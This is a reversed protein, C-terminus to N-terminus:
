YPISFFVHSVEVTCYYVNTCKKCHVFDQQSNGQLNGCAACTRQRYAELDAEVIHSPLTQSRPRRTSHVQQRVLDAPAHVTIDKQFGASIDQPMNHAQQQVPDAPIHNTFDQLFGTPLAVLESPPRFSHSRPRSQFSDRAPPSSVIATHEPVKGGNPSRRSGVVKRTPMVYAKPPLTYNGARGKPGQPIPYPATPSQLPSVQMASNRQALIAESRPSLPSVPEQAVYEGHDGRM